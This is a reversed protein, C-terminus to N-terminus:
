WGNARAMAIVKAVPPFQVMDRVKDVSIQVDRSEGEEDSGLILASGALPIPYFDPLWVFHEPSKWLGEDDVYVTDGNPSYGACCFLDASIKPAIDRWSEIECEEVTQAIANIYIAKM